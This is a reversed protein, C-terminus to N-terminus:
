PVAAPTDVAARPRILRAQRGRAPTDKRRDQASPAADWSERRSIATASMVGHARQAHGRGKEIRAKAKRAKKAASATQMADTAASACSEVAASPAHYSRSDM